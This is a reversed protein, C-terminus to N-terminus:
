IVESPEKTHEELERKNLWFRNGAKTQMLFIPQRTDTEFEIDICQARRVADKFYLTFWKFLYQKKTM